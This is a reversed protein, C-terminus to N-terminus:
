VHLVCTIGRLTGSIVVLPIHIIIIIIVTPIINSGEQHPHHLHRGGRTPEEMRIVGTALTGAGPCTKQHRQTESGHDNKVPHICNVQRRHHYEMCGSMRAPAPMHFTTKQGLPEAVIAEKGM